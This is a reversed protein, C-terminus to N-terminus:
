TGNAVSPAGDQNASTRNDAPLLPASSQIISSTGNTADKMEITHEHDSRTVRTENQTAQTSKRHCHYIVGVAVLLVGIVSGIVAACIGAAASLPPGPDSIATVTAGIVTVSFSRLISFRSSNIQLKYLASDTATTNTITLSGTQHNVKLRDRFREKFQDDACIYRLDRKIKAITIDNFYWTMLDNPDKVECPDLTVCEGEEVLKRKMKEREAAFVCRVAFDFPEDNVSNNRSIRLHYDGSDTNTINTITLSGTHHDLKLRNRFRQDCDTCTESHDRNIQAIRNNNFYWRIRDQQNVNFETNLTVSDGEMVFVSVVDPGVDSVGSFTVRFTKGSNSNNRSIIKLQYKGSDTTRTNTITLSGTQNNLELRGRFRETGENCQVDACMKSLDGTIEAIRSGNFYWRIKEQLNIKVSTNLTVSDGEMVSVSVDDTNVGSLGYDLLRGFLLSLIFLLKMKM